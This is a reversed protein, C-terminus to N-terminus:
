ARNAHREDSQAVVVPLSSPGVVQKDCLFPPMGNLAKGLSVVLLSSALKRYQYYHDSLPEKQYHVLSYRIPTSNYKVPFCITNLRDLIEHHGTLRNMMSAKIVKIAKEKM